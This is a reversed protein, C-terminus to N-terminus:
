VLWNEVRLGAVGQFDSDATLLTLDHQRAIAAILLDFQSLMRGAQRLEQFLNGFEEATQRDVPWLRLIELAANLRGLNRKLRSGSGIGARYECLVPLTIGFRDGGRLGADVRTELQAHRDLYPSLHNTDLLYRKV